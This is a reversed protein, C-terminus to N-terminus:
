SGTRPWYLDQEAFLAPTGGTHVFVVLDDADLLGRRRDGLVASLAKATYVPDLIIGETRAALSLAETSLETPRGYGEGLYDDSVRLRYPPVAVGLLAAAEGVLSRVQAVKDPVGRSISVAVVETALGGLAFGLALGAVTGCSGAASYAARASIGLEACQQAIELGAKVYGLVGRGNTGGSPIVYPRRGEECLAEAIEEMREVSSQGPKPFTWTAGLLRDLVMNGQEVLIPEGNFVLRAELGCAAAAAATMRCHNSQAGGMTILTDAGEALAHGLHFELKRAKNGGLALGTQDDRKIWLDVGAAASLRPARVLPTPVMALPHQPLKAFDVAALDATM